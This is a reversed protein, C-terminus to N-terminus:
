MELEYNKNIQERKTKEKRMELFPLTWLKQNKTMEEADDFTQPMGNVATEPLIVAIMVALIATVGLVALPLWHIYVQLYVIYPSLFTAVYGCIHVIAVGSGRVSTPLLEPAWQAITSYATNIAFRAIVACIVTQVGRAFIALFCFVGSVIMFVICLWRRGTYDMVFAIIVLSPCETVSVLSFSVFFDFELQGVSRVLGDFIINACMYELCVLIFVNRVCPRKFLESWNENPLEKSSTVSLKFQQIMKKPVEKKNIRGITLVKEVAEDVRGKSLLWMPSEPLIFKTFVALGLPLSTVLSVTKWHGCYKAIWPLLVAFFTYFIGSSMNALLTRYKPAVYELIILYAMVMSTDCSMGMIFRAASFQILNRAFTSSFGGICGVLCSTIAAPIRGFRDSVWGFLFGGVISGVFFMAQATAQYSDKDCVWELESGITSYPIETKNFEWGYQCPMTKWTQDPTQGTALVATWNVDYMECQSYGFKSNEDKPVGLNRRQFDTFNELQSIWCWHNPSVETLFIQSFYVFAGFAYFPLSAFFLTWQYLGMEGASSLLDDFTIKNEEERTM